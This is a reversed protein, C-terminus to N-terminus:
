PAPEFLVFWDLDEASIQVITGAIETDGDLLVAQTGASKVSEKLAHYSGDYGHFWLKYIGTSRKHSTNEGYLLVTDKKLQMNGQAMETGGTAQLIKLSQLAM